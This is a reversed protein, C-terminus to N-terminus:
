LHVLNIWLKGFLVGHSPTKPTFMGSTWSHRLGTQRVQRLAMSPSQRQQQAPPLASQSAATQLGGTIYRLRAGSAAAASVPLAAGVGGGSVGEGWSLHGACHEM